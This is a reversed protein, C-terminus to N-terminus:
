AQDKHQHIKELAAEMTPVQYLVMSMRPFLRLAVDVSIRTPAPGGIICTLKLQPNLYVPHGVVQSIEMINIRPANFANRLDAINYVDHTVDSMLAEMKELIAKEDAHMWLDTVTTLMITQEEDYWSVTVTMKM